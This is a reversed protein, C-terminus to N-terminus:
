AEHKMETYLIAETNIAVFHVPGMNVSWFTNTGENADNMPM